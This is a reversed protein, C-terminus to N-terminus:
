ERDRWSMGSMAGGPRGPGARVPEVDLGLKTLARVAFARNALEAKLLPHERIGQRSKITPGDNNIRTRCDEARDFASCAAELIALGGSDSIAYESQISRWLTRGAEGLTSPPSVISETGPEVVTLNTKKTM